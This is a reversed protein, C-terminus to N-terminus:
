PKAGAREERIQEQFKKEFQAVYDKYGQPDVFPNEKTGKRLRDAKGLGDFFSAHSGLFYPEVPQNMSRSAPDAQAHAPIRITVALLVAIWIKSAQSM